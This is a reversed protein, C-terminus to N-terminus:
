LGSDRESKGVRDACRHNGHPQEPRRTSRITPFVSRPSSVAVLEQKGHYYQRGEPLEDPFYMWFVRLYVAHPGEARVELVRAVWFHSEDDDITEGTPKESHNVYVFDHVSFTTNNVAATLGSRPLM